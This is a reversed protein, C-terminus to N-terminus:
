QEVEVILQFGWPGVVAGAALYGIVSGLRIRRALPVALVAAALLIIISLLAPSNHMPAHAM